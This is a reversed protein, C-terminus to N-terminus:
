IEMLTMAVSINHTQVYSINIHTEQVTFGACHPMHSCHLKFSYHQVKGNFHMIRISNINDSLYFVGARQTSKRWSLCTPLVPGICASQKHM